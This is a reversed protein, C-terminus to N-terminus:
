VGKMRAHKPKDKKEEYVVNIFHLCSFNYRFDPIAGVIAYWTCYGLTTYSNPTREPLKFTAGTCGVVSYFWARAGDFVNGATQLM